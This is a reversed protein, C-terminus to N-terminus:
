QGDADKNQSPQVNLLLPAPDRGLVPTRPNLTRITDVGTKDHPIARAILRSDPAAIHQLRDIASGNPVITMDCLDQVFQTQPGLCGVPQLSVAGRKLCGNNNSGRYISEQIPAKIEFDDTQKVEQDANEYQHFPRPGGVCEMEIGDTQRREDKIHEVEGTLEVCEIPRDVPKIQPRRQQKRWQEQM